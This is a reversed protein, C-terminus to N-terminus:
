TDLAPRIRRWPGVLLRQEPEPLGGAPRMEKGVKEEAMGQWEAMGLGVSTVESVIGGSEMDNLDVVLIRFHIGQAERCRAAVLSAVMSSPIEVLFSM